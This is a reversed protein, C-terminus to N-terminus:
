GRGSRPEEKTTGSPLGCFLCLRTELSHPSPRVLRAGGLSHKAGTHGWGAGPCKKTGRLWWRAALHALSHPCGAGARPTWDTLSGSAELFTHGTLSTGSTGHPVQPAGM